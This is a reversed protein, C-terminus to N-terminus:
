RAIYSAALLFEARTDDANLARRITAVHKDKCACGLGHTPNALTHERM